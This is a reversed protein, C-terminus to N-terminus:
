LKRLQRVKDPIKPQFMLIPSAQNAFIVSVILSLKALPKLIKKM